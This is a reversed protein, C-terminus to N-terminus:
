SFISKSASEMSRLYYANVLHGIVFECKAISFTLLRRDVREGLSRVKLDYGPQM